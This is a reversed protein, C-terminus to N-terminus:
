EPGTKRQKKIEVEFMQSATEIQRNKVTLNWWQYQKSELPAKVATQEVKRKANLTHVRQEAEELAKKSKTNLVDSHKLTDVWVSAGYKSLLELNLVRNSQHALQTEANRLASQWAGVDDQLSKPPPEVTAQLPQLNEGREIRKMEDEVLAGRVHSAPKYEELHLDKLYDRPQFSSMEQQVLAHVQAKVAPNNFEGDIYPLADIKVCAIKEALSQEYPKEKAVVSGSGGPGQYLQIASM